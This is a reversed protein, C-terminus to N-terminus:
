QALTDPAGQGKLTKLSWVFLLSTVGLLVAGTVQHATTVTLDLAHPTEADGFMMVVGLAAVGLLMQLSVTHVSAKGLKELTRDHAEEKALSAAHAGALVIGAAAILSFGAHTLLGHMSDPFHRAVAGLSVQVFLLALAAISLNVQKGARASALRGAGGWASTNMLAIVLVLAFFVQATVGHAVALGTSIETVRIGGMAGQVCVLVFAVVSLTKVLRSRSRWLCIGMLAITTLGVFAGMLRHGHEYYIDGTMQSLPYLFMNAGFTGPWDPVALGAEAATVIGGMTILGLTSVALVMALLAAWPRNLGAGAKATARGMVGAIAGLVTVIAVWGLAMGALQVGGADADAFDAGMALLTALGAIIGGVLGVPLASRRGAARATILLGGGMAALMAIGVVPGPVALGPFHLVYAALMLAASAGFGGTIAAPGWASFGASPGSTGAVGSDQKAQIM